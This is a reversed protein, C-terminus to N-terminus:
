AGAAPQVNHAALLATVESGNFAQMAGGLAEDFPASGQALAANAMTVAQTIFDATIGLVSGSQVARQLENQMGAVDAQTQATLRATDSGATIAKALSTFDMGADQGHYLGRLLFSDSPSVAAVANVNALQGDAIATATPTVTVSSNTPNQPTAGPMTSGPLPNTAQVPVPTTTNQVPPPQVFAVVPSAQTPASWTTGNWSSWLNDTTEKWVVGKEWALEVVKASSPDPNGDRLVQWAANISWVTGTNDTIQGDSINTVVTNDQSPPIPITSTGPGPSWTDGPVTKSWWLGANNEQWIRGDKFAMKIVNATTADPVGNVSVQGGQITWYHGGSDEIAGGAPTIITDDPSPMIPVTSTGSGPSWADGPLSKAWWLLSSNEQWIRGGVYAIQIVNATTADVVGNVSVQGNAVAWINGNADKIGGAQGNLMVTNDAATPAPNTSTGPGPSWTDSPSSKAWWLLSSNEHWIKGEEFAMAIVNATSTDPTGNLSVQGGPTIAWINGSPDTISGGAQLSIVTDDPSTSLVGAGAKASAASPLADGRTPTHPSVTSSSNDGTFPTGGHQIEDTLIVTSGAPVVVSSLDSINTKVGLPNAPSLEIRKLNATPLGSGSLDLTYSNTLNTDILAVSYGQNWTTAYGVLGPTNGPITLPVLDGPMYQTLTSLMVGVPNVHYNGEAGFVDYTGDNLTEWLAGMPMNTNSAIMGYTTAAAAVAGVANGNNPDFYDGGDVNYEGLFLPVNPSIGNATALSRATQAVQTVGMADTVEQQSTKATQNGTVYQHWSIFGINPGAIRFFTALDGMNAWSETLGGLKANPDFQKLAAAAANFTNALDTPSYHTDPENVLEFWEVPMGKSAFHQAVEVVMQAYLQQDAPNAVNIWSPFGLTVVQRGTSNDFFSQFNPQNNIFNDLNTFNPSTAQARSPFIINMMTNLEWNQRLLDFPWQDAIKYFNPDGYPLEDHAADGMSSSLGYEMGTVIQGTPAALNVTTPLGAAM